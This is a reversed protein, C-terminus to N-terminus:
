DPFGAVGISDPRSRWISCNFQSRRRVAASGGPPFKQRALTGDEARRLVVITNGAAGNNMVYVAGAESEWAVVRGVQLLLFLCVAVAASRMSLIGFTQSSKIHNIGKTM